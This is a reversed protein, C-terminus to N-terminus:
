TNSQSLLTGLPDTNNLLVQKISSGDGFGAKARITIQQTSDPKIDSNFTFAHAHNLKSEGTHEDTNFPMQSLNQRYADQLLSNDVGNYFYSSRLNFKKTKHW